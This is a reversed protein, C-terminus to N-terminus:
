NTEGLKWEKLLAANKTADYIGVYMESGKLFGLSKVIGSIQYKKGSELNYKLEVDGQRHITNGILFSISFTFSNNGAPVTLVTTDNNTVDRSGYLEEKINRNNWKKVVLLDAGTFTVTVNQDAPLDEDATLRYTRASLLSFCSTLLAIIGLVLVFRLVTKKM